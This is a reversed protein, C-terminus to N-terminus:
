DTAREPIERGHTQSPDPAQRGTESRCSLKRQCAYGDRTVMTADRSASTPSSGSYLPMM